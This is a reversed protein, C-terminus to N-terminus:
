STATFFIVDCLTGGRVEHVLRRDGRSYITPHTLQHGSNVCAHLIDFLGTLRKFQYNIAPDDQPM